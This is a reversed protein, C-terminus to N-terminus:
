DGAQCIFQCGNSHTIQCDDSGMLSVSHCDELEVDRTAIGRFARGEDICDEMLDYLDNGECINEKTESKIACGGLLLIVIARSLTPVTGMGKMPM